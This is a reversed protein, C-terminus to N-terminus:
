KKEINKYYDILNIKYRIDYCFDQEYNKPLFLYIDKKPKIEDFNVKDLMEMIENLMSSFHELYLINIEMKEAFKHNFNSLTTYNSLYSNTLFITEDLFSYTNNLFEIFNNYEKKTDNLKM